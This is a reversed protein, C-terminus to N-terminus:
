KTLKKIKPYETIINKNIGDSDTNIDFHLKFTNLPSENYRKRFADIRENARDPNNMYDAFDKIKDSMRIKKFARAELQRIREVSVGLIEKIADLTKPENNNLGYRLILIRKEEESLGCNNLLNRMPAVLDKLLKEEPSEEPGSILEFLETNNDGIISNLSIVEQKYEMIKKATDMGINM